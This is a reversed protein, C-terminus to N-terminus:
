QHRRRTRHWDCSPVSLFTLSCVDCAASRTRMTSSSGAVLLPRVSSTRVHPKVASSAASPASASSFIVANRGDITMESRTIGRMSPM